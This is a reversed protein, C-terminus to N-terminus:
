EGLMLETSDAVSKALIIGGQMPQVGDVTTLLGLGHAQTTPSLTASVLDVAVQGVQAQGVLPSYGMTIGTLRVESVGPAYVETLPQVYSADLQLDSNFEGDIAVYDGVVLNAAFAEAIVQQGLVDIVGTSYDVAEVVGILKAASINLEADAGTIANIDAGTIAEVDAG